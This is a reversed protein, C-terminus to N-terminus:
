ENLDQPITSYMLQTPLCQFKESLVQLIPLTLLKQPNRQEGEKRVKKLFCVLILNNPLNIRM